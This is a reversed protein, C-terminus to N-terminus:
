SQQKKLLDFIDQRTVVHGAAYTGLSCYLEKLEPTHTLSALHKKITQIDGRAIPGTLVDKPLSRQLNESTTAWLSRLLSLSAEPDMGTDTICDLAANFLAVAYNSCICLAAHYQPKREREIMCSKFGIQEFAAALAHAAQNTGEICCYPKQEANPVSGPAPWSIVPHCSAVEEAGTPNNPLLLLSDLVGSCHFLIPPRGRLSSHLNRAVEAVKDDPTAILVYDSPVLAANPAIPRGAGILNCADIASALSQTQVTGIQFIQHAHWLKALSAGVRGAGIISLEPINKRDYIM